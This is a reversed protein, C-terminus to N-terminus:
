QKVKDLGASIKKSLQFLTDSMADVMSLYSADAPEQRVTMHEYHLRINDHSNTIIWVAELEVAEGPSAKFQWVDISARYDLKGAAQSPFIHVSDAPRLGSLNRTLVGYVNDKLPQAWRQYEALKVSGGSKQTVIQPRDLLKPLTIPGVGIALNVEEANNTVPKTQPSKHQLVFFEVPKTSSCGAQLLMSILAILLLRYKYVM